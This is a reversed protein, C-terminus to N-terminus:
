EAYPAGPTTSTIHQMSKQEIRMERSNDDKYVVSLKYGLFALIRAFTNMSIRQHAKNEFNSIDPQLVGIWEAMVSQSLGKSKRFEILKENIDGPGIVDNEIM